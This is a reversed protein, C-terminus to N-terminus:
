RVVMVTSSESNFKYESKGLMTTNVHQQARNESSKPAISTKKITYQITIFEGVKWSLLIYSSRDYVVVLVVSCLCNFYSRVWASM